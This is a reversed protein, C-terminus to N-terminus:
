TPDQHDLLLKGPLSSAPPCEQCLCAHSLCGTPIFFTPKLGQSGVTCSHFWLAWTQPGAESKLQTDKPLERLRETGCTSIITTTVMLTVQWVSAAEGELCLYCHM